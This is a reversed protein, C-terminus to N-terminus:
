RLSTRSIAPVGVDLQNLTPRRLLDDKPHTLVPRIEGHKARM